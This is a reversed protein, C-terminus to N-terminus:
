EARNEAPSKPLDDLKAMNIEKINLNLELYKGKQQQTLRAILKLYNREAIIKGTETEFLVFEEYVSYNYPLGVRKYVFSGSNPNSITFLLTYQKIINKLM